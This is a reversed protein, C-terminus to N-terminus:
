QGTKLEVPTLETPKDTEEVFIGINELNLEEKSVASTPTLSTAKQPAKQVMPKLPASAPAQQEEQKLVPKPKSTPAINPAPQRKLDTTANQNYSPGSFTPAEFDSPAYESWYAPQTMLSRYYAINQDATQPPLDTRALRSAEHMEGKIALVLALNQRMRADAGPAATATRLTQEALSLDGSMAYSLAKNNMVSVASPQLKLAHDYKQRALNHEGINDLAVGYASLVRWDHTKIAAASELYRVAEFSRGAEVLAKGAEFNVDPNQPHQGATKLMVTVAQENSGIKRLAASYGVAVEPNRQDRTYRSGWYAAAAVPDMGAIDAAPNAYAGIANKYDEKSPSAVREGSTACASLSIVSALLLALRKFRAPCTPSQVRLSM